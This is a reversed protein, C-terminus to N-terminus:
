SSFIVSLQKESKKLVSVLVVKKGCTAVCACVCVCVCVCVDCVCM